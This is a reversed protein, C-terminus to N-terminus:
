APRWRRLRDRVAVTTQLALEARSVATVVQTLDASSGGVASTAQAEAQQGTQVAGKLSQGLLSAFDNGPSPASGADVNQYASIAQQAVRMLPISNM